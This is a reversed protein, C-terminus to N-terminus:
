SITRLEIYNVKGDTNFTYEFSFTRKLWADDNIRSDVNEVTAGDVNIRIKNAPDLTNNMDAAKSVLNFADFGKVFGDTTAYVFYRNFSENQAAATLTSTNYNYDTIKNFSYMFLSIILIAILVAGAMILAKSANDM